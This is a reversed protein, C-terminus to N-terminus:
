RNARSTSLCPLGRVIPPAPYERATGPTQAFDLVDALNNAAADRVGLPALSWRTEIMKLISTHDYVHRAVFGARAYPSVVFLPTRFGRLGDGYGLSVEAATVPGAPPPVHDFFGGWEDYNFVLVTRKWAPSTTVAAYIQHMFHQGARVDAYPHDDISTGSGEGAFSPDVYAVNPLTGAGCDTFFRDLTQSIARYKTGWLGLFPADSYYYRGTLGADALRDWITPLLSTTGTNSLRDTQGAHQYLRNPYTPGMIACFYREAITWDDVLRSFLDLDNRRYYGIPYLDPATKLFGDCAGAHYHVRGGTFSHDPQRFACGQFDPSLPFTRRLVGNSDPFSLDLRGDANPAWGIMHDFSRNEMMVVVVHDFGERSGRPDVSEERKEATGTAGDCGLVVGSAGIAAARLFSRRDITTARAM